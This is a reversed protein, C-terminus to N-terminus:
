LPNIICQTAELHCTWHEAACCVLVNMTNDDPIQPKIIGHHIAGLSPCHPLCPFVEHLVSILINIYTSPILRFPCVCLRSILSATLTMCISVYRMHLLSCHHQCMLLRVLAWAVLGCSPVLPFASLVFVTLIYPCWRYVYSLSNSPPSPHQPYPSTARNFVRGMSSIAFRIQRTLAQPSISFTCIPM